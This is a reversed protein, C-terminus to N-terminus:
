SRGSSYGLDTRTSSCRICPISSSIPYEECSIPQQTSNTEHCICYRTSVSSFLTELSTSLPIPHESTFLLSSPCSQSKILSTSPLISLSNSRQHGSRSSHTRSRIRLEEEQKDDM